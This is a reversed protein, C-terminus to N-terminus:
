FVIKSAQKINFERHIEETKSTCFVVDLQKGNQQVIGVGANKVSLTM